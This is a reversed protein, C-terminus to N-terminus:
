EGPHPSDHGGSADQHELHDNCSENNDEKHNWLRILLLYYVILGPILGLIVSTRLNESGFHIGRGIALVSCVCFCTLFFAAFAAISIMVLLGLTGFFIQFRSPKKQIGSEPKETLARIMGPTALVLLVFLVGPYQIALFVSVLSALIGCAINADDAGTGNKPRDSSM